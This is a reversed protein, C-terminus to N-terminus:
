TTNSKGETATTGTAGTGNAAQRRAQHVAQAAACRTRPRGREPLGARRRDDATARVAAGRGRGSDDAAQAAPHLRGGQGRTGQGKSGTGQRANVGGKRQEGTGADTACTAAGRGFLARVHAIPNVCHLVPWCNASRGRDSTAPRPLRLGGQPQLNVCSGHDDWPQWSLGPESRQVSEPPSAPRPSSGRDALHSLVPGAQLDALTWNPSSLPGGARRAHSVCSPTPCGAPLDGGQHSHSGEHPAFAGYPTSADACRSRQYGAAVVGHPSRDAAPPQYASIPSACASTIRLEISLCPEGQRSRVQLFDGSM